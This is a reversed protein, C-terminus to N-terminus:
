VWKPQTNDTLVRGSCADDDAMFGEAAKQGGMERLISADHLQRRENLREVKRQHTEWQSRATHIAGQRKIENSRMFARDRSMTDCMAPRSLGACVNPVIERAGLVQPVQQARNMLEASSSHEAVFACTGSDM